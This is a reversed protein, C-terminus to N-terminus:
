ISGTRRDARKSAIFIIIIIIIIITGVQKKLIIIRLLTLKQQLMIYGRCPCTHIRHTDQLCQWMTPWNHIYLIYQRKIPRSMHTNYQGVHEAEAEAEYELGSAWQEEMRAPTYALEELDM